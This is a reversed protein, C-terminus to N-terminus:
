CCINSCDSALLIYDTATKCLQIIQQKQKEALKHSESALITGFRILLLGQCKLPKIKENNNM